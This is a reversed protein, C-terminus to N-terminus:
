DITLEFGDLGEIAKEMIKDPPTDQYEQLKNNMAEMFRAVRVAGFHYTERLALIACGYYYPTMTEAAQERHKDSEEQLREDMGLQVGTYYGGWARGLIAPTIGNSGPMRTAYQVGVAPRIKPKPKTKHFHKNKM